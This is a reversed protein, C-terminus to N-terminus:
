KPLPVKIVEDVDVTHGLLKLLKHAIRNKECIQKYVFASPKITRKFNKRDVEVLGFKPDFGSSWQFNDLLSWYIYGRVDVGSKIAEYVNELYFLLYRVRRDDNDTAIGNETIYIPLKYEDFDVLINFIGEPHIEWGMDSINKKFESVDVLLPM